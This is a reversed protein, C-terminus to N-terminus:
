ELRLLRVSSMPSPCVCFDCSQRHRASLMQAVGSDDTSEVLLGDVLQRKFIQTVRRPLTVPGSLRAQGPDWRGLVM